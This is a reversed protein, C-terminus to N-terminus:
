IWIKNQVLVMCGEALCKFRSCPARQIHHSMMSQTIWYRLCTTLLDARVDSTIQLVKYDHRAQPELPLFDEFNDLQLVEPRRRDCSSTKQQGYAHGHFYQFNIRPEASYYDYHSDHDCSQFAPVCWQCKVVVRARAKERCTRRLNGREVRWGLHFM